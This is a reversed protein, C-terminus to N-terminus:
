ILSYVRRDFIGREKKEFPRRGCHGTPATEVEPSLVHARYHGKPGWGTGNGM